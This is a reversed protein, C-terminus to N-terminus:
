RSGSSTSTCHKSHACPPDARPRPLYHVAIPQQRGPLEVWRPGLLGLAAPDLGVLAAASAVMVSDIEKNLKELRDTVNVADGVVGYQRRSPAGLTGILARGAHLAIGMDLTASPSRTANLHGISALMERAARVARRARDEGEFFALMGDGVYDNVVAGESELPAVVAGYYENLLDVAEAPSLRESMHTFGRLDAMLLTV